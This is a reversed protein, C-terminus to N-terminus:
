AHRRLRSPTEVHPSLRAIHSSEGTSDLTMDVNCHHHLHTHILAPFSTPRSVVPVDKSGESRFRHIELTTLHRFKEGLLRLLQSEEVNARYELELSRLLPVDCKQLIQALNRPTSLPYKWLRCNWGELRSPTLHVQSQEHLRICEHPWSRLALTRLSPPLHTYIEDTAGPHSVRLCALDPWPFPFTAPFGRPWIATENVHETESLESSLSRLLPMSSFLSVLPTAPDSWREGRLTFERLLPWHLSSITQIPASEVPLVLRELSTHLKCILFDLTALESPFSWPQRYHPMTYHFTTLPTVTSDNLNDSVFLKPCLYLGDIYLHRLHPLSLIKRMSNWSIGHVDIYRVGLHLTTLHPFEPLAADITTFADCLIPDGVTPDKYSYAPCYCYLQLIRCIPILLCEWSM